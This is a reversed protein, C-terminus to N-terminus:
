QKHTIPYHVAKYPRRAAVSVSAYPCSGDLERRYGLSGSLNPRYSVPVYTVVRFCILNRRLAYALHPRIPAPLWDPGRPMKGWDDDFSCIGCRGARAGGRYDRPM